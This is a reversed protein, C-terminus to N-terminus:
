PEIRVICGQSRSWGASSKTTKWCFESSCMRRTNPTIRAGQFLNEKSFYEWLSPGAVWWSCTPRLKKVGGKCSKCVHHECTTEQSCSNPWLNYSWWPNKFRQHTPNQCSTRACLAHSVTGSWCLLVKRTQFWIQKYELVTHHVVGWPPFLQTCTRGPHLLTLIQKSFWALPPCMTIQPMWQM